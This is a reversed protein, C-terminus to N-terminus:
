FAEANAQEAEVTTASPGNQWHGWNAVNAHTPSKTGLRIQELLRNTERIQILIRYLIQREPMTEEDM